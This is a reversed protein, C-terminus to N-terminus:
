KLHVDAPGCMEATIERWANTAGPVADESLVFGGFVFSNSTGPATGPTGMEDAVLIYDSMAARGVGAIRKRPGQM